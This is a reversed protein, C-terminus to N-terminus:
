DPRASDAEQARLRSPATYRAHFTTSVFLATALTAEIIAFVGMLGPDTARLVGETFYLLSLMSVWQSTYRKGRLIGFVAPLLPVAKLIMWSGGPRLPALWGEWVVSLVILGLLAFSSVRVFIQPNM